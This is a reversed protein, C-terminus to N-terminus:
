PTNYQGILCNIDPDHHTSHILKVYGGISVTLMSTLPNMDLHQMLRSTSDINQWVKITSAARQVQTTTQKDFSHRYIDPWTTSDELLGEWHLEFNHWRM